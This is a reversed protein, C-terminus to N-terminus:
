TTKPAPGVGPLVSTIPESTVLRLIINVISQVAVGYPEPIWHMGLAWDAVQLGGLLANAWFTKSTLLAKGTM